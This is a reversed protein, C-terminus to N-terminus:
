YRRYTRYYYRHHYRDYVRARYYRDRYYRHRYYHRQPAVYVRVVPRHHRIARHTVRVIQHTRHRLHDIPGEQARAVGAGGLLMLTTLAAFMSVRLSRITMCDGEKATGSILV